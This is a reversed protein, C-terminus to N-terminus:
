EEACDGQDEVNQGPSLLWAPFQYMACFFSRNRGQIIAVDMATGVEPNDGLGDLGLSKERIACRASGPDVSRGGRESRAM